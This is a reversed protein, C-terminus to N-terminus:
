TREEHRRPTHPGDEILRKGLSIVDDHTYGLQRYFELVERNTSRVLLNLKPCGRALLWSEAHAMLRRGLGSGESPLLAGM